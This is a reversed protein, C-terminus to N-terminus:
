KKILLTEPDCKLIVGAIRAAAHGDGFINPKILRPRFAPSLAEGIANIVSEPDAPTNIVGPNAKRGGQRKGVNVVPKHFSQAEILPGSSNGLIVSAHKMASYYLRSGLTPVHCFVPHRSNLAALARNIDDGSRFLV